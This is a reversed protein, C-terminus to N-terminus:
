HTVNAEKTIVMLITARVTHTHTYTHIYTRIYTCIYTHIYTHTRAYTHTHTHTHTHMHTCASLCPQEFCMCVIACTCVDSVLKHYETLERRGDYRHLSKFSPDAPNSVYTKVESSVWGKSRPAWATTLPPSQLSAARESSGFTAGLVWM